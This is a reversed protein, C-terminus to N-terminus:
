KRDSVEKLAQEVAAKTHAELKLNALTWDGIRRMVQRSEPSARKRDPPSKPSRPTSWQPDYDFLVEVLSVRLNEPLPNKLLRECGQLLAVDNRHTLVEGRMWALKDEESHTPDAMKKEFLSIAPPSGNEVAARATLNSYGDEPQWHREWFRIIEPPAPRIPIVAEILLDIRSPHHLVAPSQTLQVLVAHASATPNASLKELVKCFRLRKPTKEYDEASDLRSLFASNQLFRLLATHDEPELSGALSVAVALLQNPDKSSQLVKLKEESMASDKKRQSPEGTHGFAILIVFVLFLPGFGPLLKKM